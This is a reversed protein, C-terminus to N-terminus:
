QIKRLQLWAYLVCLCSLATGTLHLWVPRTAPDPYYTDSFIWHGSFVMAFLGLTRMLAAIVRRAHEQHLAQERDIEARMRAYMQLEAAYLTEMDRLFKDDRAPEPDGPQRLAAFEHRIGHREALQAAKLMRGEAEVATYGNCQVLSGIKRRASALEQTM